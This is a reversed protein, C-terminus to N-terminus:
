AYNLQKFKMPYNQKENETKTRESTHKYTVKCMVAVMTLHNVLEFPELDGENSQLYQVFGKFTKSPVLNMLEKITDFEKVLIRKLESLVEKQENLQQEKKLLQEKYTSISRAM